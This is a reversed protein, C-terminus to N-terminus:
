HTRSSEDAEADEEDESLIGRALAKVEDRCGAVREARQGKGEVEGLLTDLRRSLDHLKALAEARMAGRESGEEARALEAVERAQFLLRQAEDEHGFALSRLAQQVEAREGPESWLVHELIQLDESACTDRGFLIARARLLDLSQRYRRDSAIVGKGNLLNRLELMDRRVGEPM